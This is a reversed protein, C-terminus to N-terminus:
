GGSCCRPSTPRTAWTRPPRRRGCARPTRGTPRPPSRHRGACCRSPAATTTAVAAAVLVAAEEASSAAAMAGARAAAGSSAAATVGASCAAVGATAAPGGGRWRRWRCRRRGCGAPGPLDPLDPLDPGGPVDPLDPLEPLGQLVTELKLDAQIELNTYDGTHLNRAEVPTTGVVADVFPYSLALGLARPIDEGVRNLQSLVPVLNRLNALTDEKSAEIVRTGVRGLRDLSDLMRVLAARQDDLSELAQPMTDLASVIADEQRRVSVALRDVKEIATIIAQKNDDLQGMLGSLEGLVSRVEPERGELANNLEVTITKLQAIGGGNLVLSLAGLVEEVEPNRGSHSLPIVDGDGLRGSAAVDGEPPALEVFKEGLLSTQRLSAVANDPLEVSGNVLVTVEANWGDLTVDTVRGVTVDDVKVSSQPVLDLVDDFQITVEYADEGIDAGGPLPMDYVTFDCGSLVTALAACAVVARVRSGPLRLRPGTM